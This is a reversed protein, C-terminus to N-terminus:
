LINFITINLFTGLEKKRKSLAIVGSKSKIM